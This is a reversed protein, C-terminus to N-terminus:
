LITMLIAHNVTGEETFSVSHQPSLSTRKEEVKEDDVNSESKSWLMGHDDGSTEENVVIRRLISRTANQFYSLTKQDLIVSIILGNFHFM